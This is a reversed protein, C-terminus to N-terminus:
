LRRKTLSGRAVVGHQMEAGVLELLAGLEQLAVYCTGRPAALDFRGKLASGYWWPGNGAWIVRWVSLGADKRDVPFDALDDAAGPPPKLHVTQRNM